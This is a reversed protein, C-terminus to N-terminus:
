TTREIRPHSDVSEAAAEADVVPEHVAPGAKAPTPDTVLAAVVVQV